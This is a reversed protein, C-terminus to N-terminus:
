DTSDKLTAVTANSPYTGDFVFETVNNKVQFPAIIILYDNIQGVKAVQDQQTM